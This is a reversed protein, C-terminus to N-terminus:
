CAGGSTADGAGLMSMRRRLRWMPTISMKLQRSPTRSQTSLSRIKHKLWRLWTQSSLPSNLSLAKSANSNMIVLVSLVSSQPPRAPATVKSSACKDTHFCKTLAYIGSVSVATQFVGESGWDLQSAEQVEAESAEPNVIRYQRAIQDRYKQRYGLEEQQYDKLAREFDNKLNKAQRAKVGKTGDQTKLADAELFKIQDRIQTNKLQTKTVLNELEATLNNDPSSLARQHLAAINQINHTLTKIESKAFDVRELFNQQTLTTSTHGPTAAGPQSYNSANSYNSMEHELNPTGLNNQAFCILKMEENRHKRWSSFAGYAYRLAMSDPSLLNVLKPM